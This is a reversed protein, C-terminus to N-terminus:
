FSLLGWGVPRNLNETQPYIQNALRRIIAATAGWILQEQFPIFVLENYLLRESRHIFYNRQDLIQELPAQIVHAVEGPDPYLNLGAPIFGIYPQILYRTLVPQPPLKGILEVDEPQIGLEEEAERLATHQLSKDDPDARGGPFCIQHRHSRLLESRRTLILNLGNETPQLAVLVASQKLNKTPWDPWHTPQLCFRQLFEERTITTNM